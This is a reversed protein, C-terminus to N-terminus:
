GWLDTMSFRDGDFLGRDSLKLQPIVLLAMFSLTMYPARLHSGMAKATQDLTEYRHAVAECPELSMLGAVPLGLGLTQAGDALALGGTLDVVTNVAACLETDSAGVAIINHSDHAVSGAIAGRQLGFGTVFGVAPPADQYRNVVAIKLLDQAPDAVALKNQTKPPRLLTQTILQGDIAQIVRLRKGPEAPVAFDGPSKRSCSFRNLPAATPVEINSRGDQAVCRGDIFTRVVHFGTLSDVEIFDAPDGVHLQGVPLRYHDVPTICAARLANFVDVGNAVARRVLANIHGHQLQDPHKDDSCLMIRGPFEDLLPFLAEFNRAASGERILISAGASLKDLAEDRTFCEHDTSIGAAHYRRADEGRLGPAHGDVPKGRAQAAAIMAALGPDGSLVGPFNMVESLYYIRDDDLLRVVDDVGLEAGATEFATAPVCPPAGFAFKFRIGRANDLMFEVGPVGLVNAIEHPDSVTAVTGHVVAARAFHAPTLM